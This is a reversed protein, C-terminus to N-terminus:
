IRAIAPRISRVKQGWVACFLFPPQIGAEKKIGEPWYRIYQEYIDPHVIEALEERPSASTGSFTMSQKEEPATREGSGPKLPVGGIYNILRIDM